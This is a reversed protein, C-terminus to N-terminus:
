KKFNTHQFPERQRKYRWMLHLDYMMYFYNTENSGKNWPKLFSYIIIFPKGQPRITSAQEIEKALTESSSIKESSRNSRAHTQKDDTTTSKIQDIKKGRHAQHNHNDKHTKRTEYRGIYCFIFIVNMITERGSIPPQFDWREEEDDEEDITGDDDDTIDVIEDSARKSHQRNSKTM